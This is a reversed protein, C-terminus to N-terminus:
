QGHQEAAPLTQLFPSDHDIGRVTLTGSKRGLWAIRGHVPDFSAQAVHEACGVLLHRAENCQLEIRTRAKNVVVLGSGYKKSFGVGIVEVGDDVKVDVAGARDGLLWQGKVTEIAYPGGGGRWQAPEGFLCRLGHHMIPFMHERVDQGNGLAYVDTRDARTVAFLLRDQLQIAGIVNDAHQKCTARSVAQNGKRLRTWAFLNGGGDLVMVREAMTQFDVRHQFWFVPAPRAVGPILKVVQEDFSVPAGDLRFLQGPFNVMHLENGERRIGALTKGFLGLGVLAQASAKLHNLVRPRGPPANPSDPVHYLSMCGNVMRVAVWQRATGFLPAQKLSHAGAAGPQRIGAAAATEFPKRLLRVGDASDPLQLAVTSTGRRQALTVDLQAALLSRRIAVRSRVQPPCPSRADGVLWCDAVGEGLEATWAGVMDADATAHGRAALLQQLAERGQIVHLIGPRQLIGWKFEAGAAAARRALLIFMALHALRPEGLQFPGADFLAVSCLAEESNAPEPGSFLLEGNAARRMFEEPVADAYAWESILLRDYSGRLVIDGVGAPDVAVRAAHRKLPTLLPNLRLLLQGVAAGLDAPFLALWDAWPQLLPPLKM